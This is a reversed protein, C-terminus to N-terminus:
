NKKLDAALFLRPRKKEMKLPKDDESDEEVEIVMEEEEPTLARGGATPVPNVKASASDAPIWPAGPFLKRTEERLLEPIFTTILKVEKKPAQRPIGRTWLPIMTVTGRQVKTVRQPFSRIAGHASDGSFHLAKARESTSLRYTVIDGSKIDQGEKEEGRKKEEEDLRDLQQKLLQFGRHNRLVQLRADESQESEFEQLGPLHLDIGFTLSAPTDGLSRNPTVNHLLAAHAVIEKIHAAKTKTSTKIATELIRHASENIGNGQPYEVSSYYLRAGLIKTAFIKFKTSTFQSGRDVLLAHPAGFLAVWNKRLKKIAGEATAAKARM